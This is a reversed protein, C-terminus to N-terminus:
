QRLLKSAQAPTAAVTLEFRDKLASGRTGHVRNVAHSCRAGLGRMGASLAKNDLARVVLRLERALVHHEVVQFSGPHDSQALAEQIGPLLKASRLDKVAPAFVLRVVLPQNRKFPPRPLRSAHIREGNRDLQPKRGAGERRGGHNTGAAKKRQPGAAKPGRKAPAKAGQRAAAAAKKGRAQPARAASKTSAKPAKAVSTPAKIRSLTARKAM